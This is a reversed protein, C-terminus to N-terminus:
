LSFEIQKFSDIWIDDIMRLKVPDFNKMKEWYRGSAVLYGLNKEATLAMSVKQADIL